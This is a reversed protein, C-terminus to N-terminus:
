RAQSFTIPPFNGNLNIQFQIYNVQGEATAAGKVEVSGDTNIILAGWTTGARFSGIIKITPRHGSPLTCLTGNVIATTFASMIMKYGYSNSMVYIGQAGDAGLYGSNFATYGSYTMTFDVPNPSIYLLNSLRSLSDLRFSNIPLDTVYSMVYQRNSVTDSYSQDGLRRRDETTISLTLAVFKLANYTYTFSSVRCLETGDFITGESVSFTGNGNNTVTLGTIIAVTQNDCLGAIVSFIAEFVETETRSFDDPRMPQGQPKLIIRKM